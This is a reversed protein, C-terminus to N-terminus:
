QKGGTATTPFVWIEWTADGSVDPYSSAPGQAGQGQTTINVYNDVTSDAGPDVSANVQLATFTSIFVLALGLAVRRVLRPARLFEFFTKPNKEPLFQSDKFRKGPLVFGKLLQKAKHLVRM